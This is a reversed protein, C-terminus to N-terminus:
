RPLWGFLLSTWLENHKMDSVGGALSRPQDFFVPHPVSAVVGGDGSANRGSVSVAVAFNNWVRLGGTVDWIASSKVERSADVIATEEYLPFSVTTAM